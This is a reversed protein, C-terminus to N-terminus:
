PASLGFYRVAEHPSGELCSWDPNWALSQWDLHPSSGTSRSFVPKLSFKSVAMSRLSNSEIKNLQHFHKIHGWAMERSIEVKCNPKHTNESIVTTTPLMPQKSCLLTFKQFSLVWSAALGQGLWLSSYFNNGKIIEKCTKRATDSSLNAGSNQVSGELSHQQNEASEERGTATFLRICAQVASVWEQRFKWKPARRLDPLYGGMGLLKIVNTFSYLIECRGQTGWWVFRSVDWPHCLLCFIICKKRPHSFNGKKAKYYDPNNGTGNEMRSCPSAPLLLAELSLVKKKM